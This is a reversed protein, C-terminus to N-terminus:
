RRYQNQAIMVEFTHNRMQTGASNLTQYSYGDTAIIAPVFVSPNELDNLFVDTSDLLYPMRSSEDETMLGTNVELTEAIENQYDWGERVAASNDYDAKFTDRTVNRRLTASGEILLHDYGGYPNKYFLCYRPCGKAVKYTVLGITVQTLTKGSYTAYQAANFAVYGAGAHALSKLISAYGTGTNLTLTISRSTTGYKAAATVSGSAYRTQYISQRLDFRGTIPFAMGMTSGDFSNDYSWDDTFDVTEVTTWSSGNSSKQVQFSAPFVFQSGSTIPVSAATQAIYDACIDNIRIYLNGTSTPRVARGQYITTSNYRIRFYQSAVAGLNSFHDKWIPVAM